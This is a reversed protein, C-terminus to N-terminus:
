PKTVKLNDPINLEENVIKKGPKNELVRIEVRRNFKRGDPNDSGDPNNNVAVFDKEGMGKISLSSAPIGKKLLYDKASRARRESLWLNYNDTGLADTHGIFEIKFGDINKFLTVIYDLSKKSNETLYSSNLDYFLTPLLIPAEEKPRDKIEIEKTPAPEVVSATAPENMAVVTNPKEATVPKSEEAQGSLSAILDPSPNFYIEYIDELGLNGKELLSTYAMEGNKLPYFYLDDDTTNVPYGINVPESFEGNSIDSYFIDYGGMTQHGQSIFYLKKGDETIYPADENFPTNIRSGLNVPVGWEGNAQLESKYIDMSGFGDKRNSSFYLTKGDKSVSVNGEWYKSNINKGLSKAKTWVGNVKKSVLLDAEFNDERRLYLENGDFSLFTPYQDGDSQVEPTINIPVSWKNNVKRSYFLADYFKQKSVYVLSSLDGSAVPFVDSRNTSVPRGLKVTFVNASTKMEESAFKCAEIEQNALNVRQQDKGTYQSKYSEFKEIAKDFQKDIRYATGLYYYADFPSTTEKFVGEAYKSSCHLVANELFPIAKAKEGPIELYCLGIRYNINGNEQYGRRYIKMYNSLAESYDENLLFFEADLFIEKLNEDEKQALVSLCPFNLILLLLITLHRM